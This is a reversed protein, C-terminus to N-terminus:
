EDCNGAEIKHLMVETLKEFINSKPYRITKYSKFLSHMLNNTQDSVLLPNFFIILNYKKLYFCLQFIAIKRQNTSKPPTNFELDFSIIRKINKNLYRNLFDQFYTETLNNKVILLKCNKLLAMTEIYGQPKMVHVM